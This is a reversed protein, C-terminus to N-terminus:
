IRRPVYDAIDDQDEDYSNSAISSYSSCFTSFSGSITGSAISSDIGSSLNSWSGTISCGSSTTTSPWSSFLIIVNSELLNM